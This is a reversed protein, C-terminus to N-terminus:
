CARFCVHFFCFLSESEVARLILNPSLFRSHIQSIHCRITNSTNANLGFTTCFSSTSHLFSMRECQMGTNHHYSRIFLVTELWVILVCDEFLWINEWLTKVYQKMVQSLIHCWESLIWDWIKSTSDGLKHLILSKLPCSILCWFYSSSDLITVFPSFLHRKISSSKSPPYRSQVAYFIIAAARASSQTTM